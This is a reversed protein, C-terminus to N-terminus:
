KLFPKPSPSGTVVLVSKECKIAITSPLISSANDGSSVSARFAIM